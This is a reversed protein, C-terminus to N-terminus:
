AERYNARKYYCDALKAVIAFPVPVNNTALDYAQRYYKLAEFTNYQQMCSDGQQTLWQLSDQPIDEGWSPLVTMLALVLKSQLKHM